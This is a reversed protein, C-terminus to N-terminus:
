RSAEATAAEVAVFCAVRDDRGLVTLEPEERRCREIVLPCRPAFRCGPLEAGPAPPRGPIARLEHDHEATVEPIAALLAQTYPHRPNRLLRERTGEEVIRGAYMVLVRNCLQNIVGLNHSILLMAMKEKEQIERLVELVQAQV